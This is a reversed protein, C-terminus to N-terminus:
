GYGGVYIPKTRERFIRASYARRFAEANRLGALARRKLATFNWSGFDGKVRNQFRDL